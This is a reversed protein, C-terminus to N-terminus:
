RSGKIKAHTRKAKRYINDNLTAMADCYLNIKKNREINKAIREEEYQALKVCSLKCEASRLSCNSCPHLKPDNANVSFKFM